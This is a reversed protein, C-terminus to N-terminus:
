PDTAERLGRAVPLLYWLVLALGGVVAAVVAGETFGFIFRTVLFIAATMGVALLTLGAMTTRVALRIRDSRETRPALRHYATPTILLLTSAATAVLAVMFSNRGVGDLDAFRASFPATLLFAFLVQVGPIITRLEELLERYRERLEDSGGAAAEDARSARGRRRERGEV